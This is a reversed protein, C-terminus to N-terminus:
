KFGELSAVFEDIEEKTRMETVAVLMHKSFKESDRGMDYGGIIDKELLYQNINNIPKSLKVIFENFFSDGFLVEFGSEVFKNKAYHSKDLNQEAMEQLGAKGLAVMAVSSALANLAQNSCINSTAKDRRIHQERAQLTLVFGRKGNEDITEGVLRGPVKRMLKSSVAFYGCHPGGFSEPIGFVQTDGAVIDAGLKGPPTFIGLALPNSTVIFLSKVAHIIKELEVLPEVQGYFNPYGVIVGAVESSIMEELAKIDTIGNKEPVEKVEIHQGKAYTKIVNKTEPHLSEAILIKNRRTYSAALMAAEALATGGDYMSSNALDMGTLEAIMTQFEFIAQLEGQSIEPQYPTYATYFESRSIVHDVITPIYHNYVGAGLFSSAEFTNVNKAALKNLEKLLAPESKAPKLNFARNFRIEVPIDAFLEEMSEIGIATLMEKQDTDTMPLYRHKRM